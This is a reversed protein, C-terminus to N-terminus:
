KPPEEAVLARRALEVAMWGIEEIMGDVECQYNKLIAHKLRMTRSIQEVSWHGCYDYSQKPESTDM